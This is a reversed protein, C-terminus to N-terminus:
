EIHFQVFFGYFMAYICVFWRISYEWCCWVLMAIYIKSVAHGFRNNFKCSVRYIYIYVFGCISYELIRDTIQVQLSRFKRKQLNGSTKSLIRDALYKTYIIICLIFGWYGAIFRDIKPAVNYIWRLVNAGHFEAQSRGPRGRRLAGPVLCPLVVVALGLWRRRNTFPEVRRPDHQAEWGHQYYHSLMTNFQIRVQFGFKPALIKRGRGLTKCTAQETCFMRGRNKCSTEQCLCIRNNYFSITWEQRNRGLNKVKLCVSFLM